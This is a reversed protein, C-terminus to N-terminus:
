VCGCRGNVRMCVNGYEGMEPNEDNHSVQAPTTMNIGGLSQGRGGVFVFGDPHHVISQISCPEEVGAGRDDFFRRFQMWEGDSDCFFVIMVLLDVSM